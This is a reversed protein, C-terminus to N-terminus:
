WPDNDEEEIDDDERARRRAAAPAAVRQPAPPQAPAPAAPQEPEPAQEEQGGMGFDANAAEPDAAELEAIEDAELPPQYNVYRELLQGDGGFEGLSEAVQESAKRQAARATKMVLDTLQASTRGEAAASFEINHLGGNAGVEVTVAGDQSTARGTAAALNETLQASRKQVDAMRESIGALWDDIEM